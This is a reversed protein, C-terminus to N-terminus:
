QMRLLRILRLFGVGLKNEGSSGLLEDGLSHTKEQVRWATGLFTVTHLRASSRTTANSMWRLSNRHLHDPACLPTSVLSGLVCMGRLAEARNKIFFRASPRCKPISFLMPEIIRATCLKCPWNHRFDLRYYVASRDAVYWWAPFRDEVYDCGRANCMVISTLSGGRECSELASSQLYCWSLALVPGLDTLRFLVEHAVGTFSILDVHLYM